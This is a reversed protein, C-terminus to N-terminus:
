CVTEKKGMWCNRNPEQGGALDFDLIWEGKLEPRMLTSDPRKAELHEGM